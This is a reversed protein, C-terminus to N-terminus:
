GALEAESLVSNSNIQASLNMLWAAISENEYLWDLSAPDIRDAHPCGIRKLISVFEIASSSMIVLLLCLFCGFM